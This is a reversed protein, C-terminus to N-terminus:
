ARLEAASPGCLNGAWLHAPDPAVQAPGPLGWVISKERCVHLGPSINININLSPRSMSCPSAYKNKHYRSEESQVQYKKLDHAESVVAYVRYTVWDYVWIIAWLIFIVNYLPCSILACMNGANLDAVNPGTM